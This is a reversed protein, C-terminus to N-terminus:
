RGKLPIGGNAQIIIEGADSFVYDIFMQAEAQLPEKYIFNLDKYYKYRGNAVNELNPAVGDINLPKLGLAFISLAGTDSMGLAYPTNVIAQVEDIDSYNIQWRNNKYADNLAEGFGPIEKTLVRNSSDGEERSQVVIMAGNQWMSKTGKFIDVLDKPSINNDPVKQNVGIIIGIRAYPLEKLGNAKEDEKLPTSTLGLEIAGELVAKVAGSSGVSNPIKIGKGLRLNYERVLQGTIPLNSGSGAMMYMKKNIHPQVTIDKEQSCDALLLVLSIVMCILAVARRNM